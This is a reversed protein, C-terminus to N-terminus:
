VDRHRVIATAALPLALTLAAAFAFIAAEEGFLTWLAGFLISALLRAISTATVLLGLGSARLEDPVVASGLAMLVGDTAAYYAGFLGLYLLLEGTGLTPLLLLCYALLLLGYGGLFVKGRGIRDALRGAPVALLMYVLATGVFLLPFFSPDFDLRRQVTLYLFGDSITVLGLAAGVIVLMRFRPVRLLGAAARLSVRDARAAPEAATEAAPAPNQVFLTLVGLGLLAFCFSVVFVADFSLPAVLLLGFAVLPGLMAGATDLARHVGFATGLEDRPSSLSIMADRPSTRIGKGTREVFVTAGIWATSSAVLLGLRSIASLGYGLAAVEKHRQWRDAVFGSGVRVLAGAGQYLGDVFGFALPSYGLTYVLYLPLVTAVMESSVDTLLSVIGLLLVTRSVRPLSLVRAAGKRRGGLLVRAGEIQYM